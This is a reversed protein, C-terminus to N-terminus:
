LVVATSFCLFVVLSSAPSGDGDFVRAHAAQLWRHHSEQVASAKLGQSNAAVVERPKHHRQLANATQDSFTGTREQKSLATASTLTSLGDNAEEQQHKVAVKSCATLSTLWNIQQGEARRPGAKGQLM